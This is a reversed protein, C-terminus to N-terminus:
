IRLSPQFPKDLRDHKSKNDFAWLPQLNKLAWCRKFDIDEARAFNFATVPIKHDIHWAGQNEWTMGPQFQKELHRRLKDATYGVLDEWRRGNKVGKKLAKGVSVAILRNFKERLLAARKKEKQREREEISIANLREQKKKVYLNRNYEPRKLLWRRHREVAQKKKEDPNIAKFIARTENIKSLNELYYKQNYARQIDKKTENDM